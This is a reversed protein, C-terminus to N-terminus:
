MFLLFLILAVGACSSVIECANATKEPLVGRLIAHMTRGGDLPMLPLMNLIGVGLSISAGLRLVDLVSTAQAFTKMIGVPGMVGSDAPSFLLSGVSWAVWVGIAPVGYNCFLGKWRYLLVALGICAVSRIMGDELTLGSKFFILGAAMVLFLLINTWVGSGYIEAQAEYPLEECARAGEESPKVYAGILLPSLTIELGDPCNTSIWLGLAEVIRALPRPLHLEHKGGDYTLRSPVNKATGIKANVKVVRRWTMGPIPIGIGMAKIAVGHRAMAYAHGLEHIIVVVLLTIVGLALYM